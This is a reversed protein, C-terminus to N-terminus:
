TPSTKNFTYLFTGIASNEYKDATDDCFMLMTGVFENIRKPTPKLHHYKLTSIVLRMLMKPNTERRYEFLDWSTGAFCTHPEFILEQTLQWDTIKRSSVLVTEVTPEGEVLPKTEGSERTYTQTKWKPIHPKLTETCISPDSGKLIYGALIHLNYPVKTEHTKTHLEYIGKTLKSNLALFTKRFSELPIKAEIHLTGSLDVLFHVHTTKVQEDSDHQNALFIPYKAALTSYVSEFQSFPLRVIGHIIM